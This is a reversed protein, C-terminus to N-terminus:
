ANCTLLCRFSITARMQKRTVLGVEGAQREKLAEDIRLQSGEFDEIRLVLAEAPRLGCVAFIRLIVHERLAADSLLACFELLSLFRECPKKCIKPMVIKRAPSKSIFIKM